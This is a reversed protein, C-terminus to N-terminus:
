SHFFESKNEDNRLFRQRPGSLHAAKGNTCAYLPHSVTDNKVPRPFRVAQSVQFVNSLTVGANQAKAEVGLETSPGSSTSSRKTTSSYSRALVSSFTFPARFCTKKCFPLDM